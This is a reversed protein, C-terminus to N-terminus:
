NPCKWAIRVNIASLPSRANMGLVIQGSAFELTLRSILIEEAVAAGWASFDLKDLANRLEAWAPELSPVMPGEPVFADYPLLYDLLWNAQPNDIDTRRVTGQPSAFLLAEGGRIRRRRFSPGVRYIHRRGLADRRPSVCRSCTSQRGIHASLDM